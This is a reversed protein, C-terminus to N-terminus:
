RHAGTLIDLARGADSDRLRKVPELPQGDPGLRVGVTMPDRRGDAELKEAFRQVGEEGFTGRAVAVLRRKVYGLGQTAPPADGVLESVDLASAVARLQSELGEVRELLEHVARAVETLEATTAPVAQASYSGASV